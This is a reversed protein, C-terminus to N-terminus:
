FFTMVFNGSLERVHTLHCFIGAMKWFERVIGQGTSFKTKGLNKGSTHCGQYDVQYYTAFAWTCKSRHRLLHASKCCYEMIMDTFLKLAQEMLPIYSDSSMEM